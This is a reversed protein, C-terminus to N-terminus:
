GGKRLRVALHNPEGQESVPDGAPHSDFVAESWGQRLYEAAVRPHSLPSQGIDVKIGYRDVEDFGVRLRFTKSGALCVERTGGRIGRWQLVGGEVWKEGLIEALTYDRAIGHLFRFADRINSKGSANAGVLVSFPGLHLTADRFNKFRQLRLRRLMSPGGSDTIM